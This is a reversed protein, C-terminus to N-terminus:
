WGDVYHRLKDGFIVGVGHKVTAREDPDLEHDGRVLVTVRSGQGDDGIVVEVEDVSSHVWPALIVRAGTELETVEPKREGEHAELWGDCEDVIAQYLRWVPAAYRWKRIIVVSTPMAFLIERRPVRTALKERRAAIPDAFPSAPVPM